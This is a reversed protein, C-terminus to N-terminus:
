GDNAIEDLFDSWAQMMDFRKDMHETRNYAKGLSNDISHSLQLEIVHPPWELVEDLITRASARFGHACHKTKTDYGLGRLLDNVRNETACGRINNHNCFVYPGKGYTIPKMRNIIEVVQKSLPVKHMEHDKLQKVKYGPVTWIHNDLDLEKWEMKRIEGPRQFVHASIELLSEDIINGEYGSVKVWLQTFENVKTIAPRHHVSPKIFLRSSPTPNSAIINLDIAHECIRSIYSRARQATELKNLKEISRILSVIQAHEIETFPYKALKPLVHRSLISAHKKITSESRRTKELRLWDNAVSGFTNFKDEQQTLKDKQKQLAPDKGEKMLLSRANDREIRAEALTYDSYSGICLTKEKGLYKYKFRWLKSGNPKVIIFLGLEDYKKYPKDKPKLNRVATASLKMPIRWNNFFQLTGRDSVGSENPICLYM